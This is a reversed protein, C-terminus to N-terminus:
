RKTDTKTKSTRGKRKRNTQSGQTRNILNISLSVFFHLFFIFFFLFFSGAFVKDKKKLKKTSGDKKQQRLQSLLQTVKSIVIDNTPAVM